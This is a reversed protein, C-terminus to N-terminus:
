ENADPEIKKFMITFNAKHHDMTVKRPLDGDQDKGKMTITVVKKREGSNEIRVLRASNEIYWAFGKDLTFRHYTDGDKTYYQETSTDLGRMLLLSLDKQLTRIVAPRNLEDIVQHVTFSDNRDWEFDFFSLGMENQFVVRTGTEMEKFLLVGGLHFKKFLVRGDVSCRYLARDFDPRFRM